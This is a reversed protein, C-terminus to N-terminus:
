KAEAPATSASAHARAISRHSSRVKQGHLPGDLLEILQKLKRDGEPGIAVLASHIRSLIATDNELGVRFEDVRDPEISPAPLMLEFFALQSGPDDAPGRFSARYDPRTLVRGADIARLATNCWALQQVVTSRFAEASSELRKLLIIKLLEGPCALSDGADDPDAVPNIAPFTLAELWEELGAFLEGYTGALDYEVAVPPRREPFRLEVEGGNLPDRVSIRGYYRRLFQRTRRLVCASIIPRIDGDGEAASRFTQRYDSIGLHRFAGPAAFLDILHQLDLLTNNIPTATLLAVSSHRVLDSLARYRRTLPNRFNHAEDILVLDAGRHRAVDFNNRGLSEMSLLTVAGDEKVWLDLNDSTAAAAPQSSPTGGCLYALEREWQDRLAAPVVVVVRGGDDLTRQVLRLGIYTKGLGVADAVIVGGYRAMIDCAREYARAQHAALTLRVCKSDDASSQHGDFHASLVRRYLETPAVSEPDPLKDSSPDASLMVPRAPQERISGAALAPRASEGSALKNFRERLHHLVIPRRYYTVWSRSAIGATFVLASDPFSSGDHYFLLLDPAPLRDVVTIRWEAPTQRATSATAIVRVVRPSAIGDCPGLLEQLRDPDAVAAEVRESESWLQRLIAAATAGSATAIPEPWPTGSV